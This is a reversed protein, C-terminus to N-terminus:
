RTRPDRRLTDRRRLERIFVGGCEPAADPRHDAASGEGQDSGVARRRARRPVLLLVQLHRAQHVHVRVQFRGPASRDRLPQGQEDHLVRGANKWRVTTGATITLKKPKFFNDGVKIKVVKPPAPPPTQGPASAAALPAGVGVLATTLLVAVLWSGNQRM